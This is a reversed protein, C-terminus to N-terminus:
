SNEAKEPTARKSSTMWSNLSFHYSVDQLERMQRYVVRIVMRFCELLSDLPALQFVKEGITQIKEMARYKEM